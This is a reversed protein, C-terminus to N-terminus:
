RVRAFFGNTATFGQPGAADLVFTQATLEFGASGLPLPLSFTGEGSADIPVVVTGAVPAILLECGLVPVNVRSLGLGLVGLSGITANSLELDLSTGALPCPDVADLLPASGGVPACGNGYTGDCAVQVCSSFIGNNNGHVMRVTIGLDFNANLQAKPVTVSIMSGTACFHNQTHV